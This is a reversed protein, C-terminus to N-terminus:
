LEIISNDEAPTDVIMWEDDVVVGRVVEVLGVIATTPIRRMTEFTCALNTSKSDMYVLYM